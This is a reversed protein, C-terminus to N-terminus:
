IGRNKRQLQIPPLPADGWEIIIKEDLELFVKRAM